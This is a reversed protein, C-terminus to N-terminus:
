GARNGIVGLCLPGFLTSLQDIGHLTAVDKGGTPAVIIGVDLRCHEVISKMAAFQQADNVTGLDFLVIDHHYRLMGAIVSSQISSLRDTFAASNGGLPILTIKDALSLVACEALPIQGALVDEWGADFELGLTSALNAEAFNADVVAISHGSQAIARALCMTVTSSGVGINTGALGVLSRGEAAAALLANVVPLLLKQSSGLLEDTIAPWRFEDVEFVPRFVTNPAQRPTAFTSLPRREGVRSPLTLEESDAFTAQQQAAIAAYPDQVPAAFHPPRRVAAVSEPQDIRAEHPEASHTFVRLAPSANVHLAPTASVRLTPAAAVPMRQAYTNRPPAAPMATDQDSYANIFAQDINSM